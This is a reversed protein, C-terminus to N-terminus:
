YYEYDINLLLDPREYRLNLIIDDFILDTENDYLVCSVIDNKYLDDTQTEYEFIFGNCDRLYLICEDGNEVINDIIFERSYFNNYPSNKCFESNKQNNQLPSNKSFTEHSVILGMLVIM